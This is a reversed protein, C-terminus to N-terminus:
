KQKAAKKAEKELKKRIQKEKSNLKKYYKEIAKSTSSSPKISNYDSLVKVKGRIFDVEEFNRALETNMEIENMLTNVALVRERRKKKTFGEAKVVDMAETDFIPNEFSEVPENGKWDTVNLVNYFGPTTILVANGGEEYANTVAKAFFKKNMKKVLLKQSPIFVFPKYANLSIIEYDVNTLPQESLFIHIHDRIEINSESNMAYAYGTNLSKIPYISNSCSSLVTAICVSAFLLKFTKMNNFNLHNNFINIKSIIRKM